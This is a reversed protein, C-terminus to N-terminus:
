LSWTHWVLITTESSPPLSLLVQEAELCYPSIDGGGGELASDPVRLHKAGCSDHADCFCHCLM